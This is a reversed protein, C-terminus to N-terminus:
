HLKVAFFGWGTMELAYTPPTVSLDVMWSKGQLLVADSVYTKGDMDIPYTLGAGPKVGTDTLKTPNTIDDIQFTQWLPAGSLNLPNKITGPVMSDLLVRMYVPANKDAKNTFLAGVFKGGGALAALDPKYTEDWMMKAPDFRALCSAVPAGLYHAGATIISSASYILGDAGLVSNTLGGCAPHEVVSFSDDAPDMVLMGSRPSTSATAPEFYQFAAFFKGGVELVQRERWVTYTKDGQKTNFKSALDVNSTITMCDPNWIFGQLTKEDFLFSKTSTAHHILTWYFSTAGYAGFGVKGKEEITGDTAFGYKSVTGTGSDAIFMEGKNLSAWLTSNTTTLEITRTSDVKGTATLNDAFQITDTRMSLDPSYTSTAIAVLPGVSSVDPTPLCTEGGSSSSGSGSSSSSSNSTDGTNGDGCGTLLFTLASLARTVVFWSHGKGWSM